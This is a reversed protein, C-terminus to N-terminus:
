TTAYITAYCRNFEDGIELTAVRRLYKEKGERGQFAPSCERRRQADFIKV